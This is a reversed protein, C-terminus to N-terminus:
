ARRLGEWDPEERAPEDPDSGQASRAPSALLPKLASDILFRVAEPGTEPRIASGVPDDTM